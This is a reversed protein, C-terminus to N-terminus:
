SNTSVGKIAQKSRSRSRERTSNGIGSVGFNETQAGGVIANGKSHMSGGGGPGKRAKKEVVAHFDKQTKSRGRVREIGTM